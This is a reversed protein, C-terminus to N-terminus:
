NRPSRLQRISERSFDGIVALLARLQEGYAAGLTACLLALVIEDDPNTSKELRAIFAQLERETAKSIM